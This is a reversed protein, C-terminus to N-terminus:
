RVVVQAYQLGYQDALFEKQQRSPTLTTEALGILADRQLQTLQRACTVVEVNSIQARGSHWWQIVASKSRNHGEKNLRETALDFAQDKTLKQSVNGTKSIRQKEMEELVISQEEASWLRYTGSKYISSLTCSERPYEHLNNNKDENEDENEDEPDFGTHENITYTSSALQARLSAELALCM